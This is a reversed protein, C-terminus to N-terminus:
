RRLRPSAPFREPRVLLWLSPVAPRPTAKCPCRSAVRRSRPCLAPRSGGLRCPHPATVSIPGATECGVHRPAGRTTYRVVVSNAQPQNVCGGAVGGRPGSPAAAIRPPRNGRPYCRVREPKRFLGTRRPLSPARAGRPMPERDPRVRRAAAWGPHGGAPIDAQRCARDESPSPPDSRSRRLIVRGRRSRGSDEAPRRVPKPSREEREHQRPDRVRDYGVPAARGRTSPQRDRTPCLTVTRGESDDPLM